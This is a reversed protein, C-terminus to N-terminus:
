ACACKVHHNEGEGFVESLWEYLERVAYIKGNSNRFTVTEDELCIEAESTFHEIERFIIPMEGEGQRPMTGNNLYLVQIQRENETDNELWNAHCWHCIYTNEVGHVCDVEGCFPCIKKWEPADERVLPYHVLIEHMTIEM